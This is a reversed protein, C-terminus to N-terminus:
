LSTPMEYVNILIVNGDQRVRLQLHMGSLNTELSILSTMLCSLPIELVSDMGLRIKSSVGDAISYHLTTLQATSKFDFTHM